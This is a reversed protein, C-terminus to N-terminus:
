RALPLYGEIKFYVANGGKNILKAGAGLTMVQGGPMHFELVGGPQWASYGTGSLFAVEGGVRTGGSGNQSARTTLRGRTWFSESGFSYSALAQYAWPESAGAGWHDLGGSVVVGKGRDSTVVGGALDNTAVSYGVTLSADGGTYSDILGVAPRVTVTSKRTTGADYTLYYAQLSLLPKVGAGTPSTSLGALALFTQKTDYEAVGFTGATWQAAAGNRAVLILSLAIVLTKVRQNTGNM